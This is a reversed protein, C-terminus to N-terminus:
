IKDEYAGILFVDQMSYLYYLDLIQLYGFTVKHTLRMKFTM